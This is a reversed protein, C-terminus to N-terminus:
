SNTIIIVKHSLNNQFIFCFSMTRILVTIMMVLKKKSTVWEALASVLSESM